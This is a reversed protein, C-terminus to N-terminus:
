ADQLFFREESWVQQTKVMAAVILASPVPDATLLCVVVWRKTMFAAVFSSQLKIYMTKDRETDM